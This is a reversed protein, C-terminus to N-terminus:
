KGEDLSQSLKGRLTALAKLIGESSEIWGESGLGLTPDGMKVRSRTQVYEGYLKEQTLVYEAAYIREACDRYGATLGELVDLLSLLTQNQM